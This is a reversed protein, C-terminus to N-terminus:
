RCRREIAQIAENLFPHSDAASNAIGQRFAEQAHLVSSGGPIGLVEFACWSHGNWNFWINTPNGVLRMEPPLERKLTKIRARPFHGLQTNVSQAEFGHQAERNHSTSRALLADPPGPAMFVEEPRPSAFPDIGSPSGFPGSRALAGSTSGSESSASSANFPEASRLEMETLHIAHPSMKLARNLGIRRTVHKSWGPVFEIRRVAENLTPTKSLNKPM